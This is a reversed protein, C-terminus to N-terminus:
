WGEQRSILGATNFTWTYKDSKIALKVRISEGNSVMSDFPSFGFVDGFPYQWLSEGSESYCELFVGKGPIKFLFAFYKGNDFFTGAGNWLKDFTIEKILKASENYFAIGGKSARHPTNRLGASVFTGTESVYISSYPRINKFENIKNGREDFILLEQSAFGYKQISVFKGKESVRPSDWANVNLQKVLKGKIDYFEVKKERIEQRRAESIKVRGSDYLVGNQGQSAYAVASSSSKSILKGVEAALTCNVAFFCFSAGVFVMNANAM